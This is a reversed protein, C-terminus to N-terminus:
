KFAYWTRIAGLTGFKRVELTKGSNFDFNKTLGKKAKLYDRAAFPHLAKNGEKWNVIDCIEKATIYSRKVIVREMGIGSDAFVGDMFSVMGQADMKYWNDPVDMNFIEDMLDEYSHRTRYSNSNDGALKTLEESLALSEGQTYYYFAEAWIQAVEEDTMRWPILSEDVENLGVEMVWFRRNDDDALFTDTNTTGFFVCSKKQKTLEAGYSARYTDEASSVFAKMANMTDRNLGDLEAVEVFWMGKINECITKMGNKTTKLDLKDQFYGRSFRKLLSSKGIGQKGKLILMQHFECGANMARACAAIFMKRTMARNLGKADDPAGIRDIILTDLREVKDWELAQLYDKIPHFPVTNRLDQLATKITEMSFKPRELLEEGQMAIQIAATDNTNNVVEDSGRSAFDSVSRWEPRYRFVPVGRMLDFGFLGRFIPHCEFIISLNMATSEFGHKTTTLTDLWDESDSISDIKVTKSKKIAGDIDGLIDEDEPDVEEHEIDETEDPTFSYSPDLGIVEQRFVSLGVEKREAAEGRKVSRYEKEADKCRPDEYIFDTMMKFSKGTAGYNCNQEDDLWAETFLHLRVLDFANHTHGNAAPDNNEHRSMCYGDPFIQLGAISQSGILKYRSIDYGSPEYVDSLFTDIADHLDFTRCFAGIRGKKETPDGKSSNGEMIADPSESSLMPPIESTADGYLIAIDDVDFLEGEYVNFIHPEGRLTTGVYMFQAARFSVKDFQEIGLENALHRSLFNYDLATLGESLPIVIRFKSQVESHSITSYIVAALDPFKERFITPLDCDVKDADLTIIHRALVSELKREGSGSLEAGVYGAVNKIRDQQKTDLRNYEARTYPPRVVTKRMLEVFDRWLMSQKRWSQAKGTKEDKKKLPNSATAFHLLTEEIM